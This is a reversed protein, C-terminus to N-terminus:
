WRRRDNQASAHVLPRLKKEIDHLRFWERPLPQAEAAVEAMAREAEFHAAALLETLRSV